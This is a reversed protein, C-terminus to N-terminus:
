GVKRTKATNAMKKIPPTPPPMIARECTGGGALVTCQPQKQCSARLIPAKCVERIKLICWRGGVVGGEEEKEEKKMEWGEQCMTGYRSVRSSVAVATETTSADPGATYQASPEHM